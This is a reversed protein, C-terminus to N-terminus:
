KCKTQKVLNRGISADVMGIYYLVMKQMCSYKKSQKMSFISASFGKVHRYTCVWHCLTVDLFVEIKLLMAM